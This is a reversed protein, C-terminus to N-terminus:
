NAPASPTAPQESEMGAVGGSMAAASVRQRGRGIHPLLQRESPSQTIPRSMPCHMATSAPRNQMGEQTADDFVLQGAPNSHLADFSVERQRLGHLDSRSHLPWSSVQQPPEHTSTLVSRLFQEAQPM